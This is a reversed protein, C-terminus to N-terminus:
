LLGKSKKTILEIHTAPKLPTIGNLAIIPRLTRLKRAHSLTLDETTFPVKEM